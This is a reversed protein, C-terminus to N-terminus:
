RRKLMALENRVNSRNGKREESRPKKGEGKKIRRITKGM